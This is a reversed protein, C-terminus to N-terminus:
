GTSSDGIVLVSERLLEADTILGLVHRDADVVVAHNLRTSTVVNCSRRSISIARGARADHSM